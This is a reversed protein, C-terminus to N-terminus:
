RWSSGHEAAPKKIPQRVPRYAFSIIGLPRGNASRNEVTEMVRTRMDETECEEMRKVDADRLRGARDRGGRGGRGSIM